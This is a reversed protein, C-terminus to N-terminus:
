GDDKAVVSIIVYHVHPQHPLLHSSTYLFASFGIESDM